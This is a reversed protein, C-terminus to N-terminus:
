LKGIRGGLAPSRKRVQKIQQSSLPKLYDPKKGNDNGYQGSLTEKTAYQLSISNNEGGLMSKKTNETNGEVISFIAVISGIGIIVGIM